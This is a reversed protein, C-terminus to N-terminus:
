EVLGGEPDDEPEFFVGNVTDQYGTPATLYASLGARKVLAHGAHRAIETTEPRQKAVEEAHAESLSGWASAPDSTWHTGWDDGIMPIM